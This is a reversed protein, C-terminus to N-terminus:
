VLVRADRAAARLMRASCNLDRFADELAQQGKSSFTTDMQRLLRRCDEQESSLRRPTTSSSANVLTQVDSTGQLMLEACGLDVWQPLSEADISVGNRDLKLLLDRCLVSADTKQMTLAAVMLVLSMFMSFFLITHVIMSQSEQSLTLQISVCPVSWSEQALTLQISVCPKRTLLLVLCVSPALLWIM